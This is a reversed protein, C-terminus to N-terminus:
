PVERLEDWLDRPDLEVHVVAQGDTLYEIKTVRARVLADDVGRAIATSQRSYAAVSQSGLPLADVQKRLADMAASEAARSTKLKSGRWASKAEARIPNALWPPPQDPLILRSNVAPATAAREARGKGVPVEFQADFDRRLADVHAGANVLSKGPPFSVPPEDNATQHIGAARELADYVEDGTVGLTLDVSLDDHFRVNTVPRTALWKDLRAAITPDALLDSVSRDQAIRLNTVPQLARKAADRAADAIARKRSADDVQQWGPASPPPRLSDLKGASVSTGTALFTRGNWDRLKMRIAAPPVPSKSGLDSAIQELLQAVSQGAISLKVQCTNEDLWRPGGIQDARRLLDTLAASQGTRELFQGVNLRPALRQESIDDQLRLVAGATAASVQASRADDSDDASAGLASCSLLITFLTAIISRNM